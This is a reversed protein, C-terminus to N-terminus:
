AVGRVPRCALTGSPIPPTSSYVVFGHKRDGDFGAAEYFRRQAPAAGALVMVKYCGLAWAAALARALVARGYGRRRCDARTVVNEVVAWPRCARTLNPLVVLTCSTVLTGAEEGVFIRMRPDALM